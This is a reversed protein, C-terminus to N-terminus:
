APHGNALLCLESSESEARHQRRRRARHNQLKAQGRDTVFINSPKIDRHVIGNEHMAALADVIQIGLELLEPLQLPKGGIHERLTQGELLEMAIFSTERERGVDVAYLHEPPEAVRPAQSRARIARSARPGGRVVAAATSGTM